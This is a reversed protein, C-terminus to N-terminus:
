PSTDATANAVSLETALTWVFAFGARPLLWGPLDVSIIKADADDPMEAVQTPVASTVLDTVSMRAIDTDTYDLKMSLGRTPQNVEFFLRHLTADAAVKYLYSVRVPKGAKVVDDGVTATYTQGTKRETRRVPRLAGNLRFELLEFCDRSSAILGPRDPMFWALTSPVDAILDRFEHRDSVCAFKQVSHAPVVTYEWKVLVDFRPAGKTSGEDISSLRISVDVDYWREAARIAQDRIDTYIERAFQDDGLRLSLVNTAIDDLLEPSAVRKLDEKNVALGRLVADTFDPTLEKLVSRTREVDAAEKDRGTFFDVAIGIAGTVLLVDSLARIIAVLLHPTGTSAALWDALLSSLLGVLVLAGGVIILKLHYVRAILTSEQKMSYNCNHIVNWM